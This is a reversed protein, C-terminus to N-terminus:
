YNSAWIRLVQDLALVQAVHEPLLPSVAPWVDTVLLASLLLPIYAQSLSPSVCKQLHVVTIGIVHANHIVVAAKAALTRIGLVCLPAHNLTRGVVHKAVSARWWGVIPLAGTPDFPRAIIVLNQKGWLKLAKDPFCMKRTILSHKAHLSCSLCERIM